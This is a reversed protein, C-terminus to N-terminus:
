PPGCPDAATDHNGSIGGPPASAEQCGGQLRVHEIPICVVEAAKDGIYAETEGYKLSRPYTHTTINGREQNRKAKVSGETQTSSGPPQLFSCTYAHQIQVGDVEPNRKQFM